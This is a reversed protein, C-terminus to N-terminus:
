ALLGLAEELLIDGAEIMEYREREKRIRRDLNSLAKKIASNIGWGEGVGTFQGASSNVQIRIHTLRGGRRRKKKHRKIFITISSRGLFKAHHRAFSGLSEMLWEKSLDEIRYDSSDRVSLQVMISQEDEEMEAIKRLINTITILGITKGNEAVVLSSINFKIMLSIAKTVSDKPMVTIVGKTMITSIPDRLPRRKEGVVEGLSARVRPEMVKHVIDHMTVIGIAKEGRVIPLKAVGSERMVAIAKAISEEESVTVPNKTMLNEVKGKMNSAVFKMISEDTVIGILEDNRFIPLQRVDNEVMLKALKVLPTQASAKPATRYVSKVKAKAPDVKGKYIWRETLLGLYKDRLLDYVILVKPHKEKFIGLCKSLTDNIDVIDYDQQLFDEAKLDLKDVCCM